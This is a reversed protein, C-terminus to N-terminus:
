QGTSFAGPVRKACIKTLGDFFEGKGGDLLEQLDLLEYATLNDELIVLAKAVVPDLKEM